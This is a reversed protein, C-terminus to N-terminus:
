AKFLSDPPSDPPTLPASAGLHIPLGKGSVSTTSSSCMPLTERDRSPSLDEVKPNLLQEYPRKQYPAYRHGCVAVQPKQTLTESGLSEKKPSGLELISNINGERFPSRTRSHLVNQLMKKTGGDLESRVADSSSSTYKKSLAENMISQKFRSPPKPQDHYHTRRRTIYLKNAGVVSPVTTERLKTTDTKMVTSARNRVVFENPDTMGGNVPIRGYLPSVRQALALRKKQECLDEPPTLPGKRSKDSCKGRGKGKRGCQRLDLVKSLSDDVSAPSLQKAPSESIKFEPRMEKPEKPRLLSKQQQHAVPPLSKSCCPELDSSPPSVGSTGFSEAVSLQAAKTDRLSLLLQATEKKLDGTVGKPAGKAIKDLQGQTVPTNQAAITWMEVLALTSYGHLFARPATQPSRPGPLDVDVELPKFEILETPSLRPMKAPPEPLVKPNLKGGPRKLPESGSSLRKHGHHHGVQLKIVM